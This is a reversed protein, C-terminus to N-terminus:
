YDKLHKRGGQPFDKEKKKFSLGAPNEEAPVHAARAGQGTNQVTDSLVTESYSRSNRKVAANWLPRTM